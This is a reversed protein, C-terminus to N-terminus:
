YSESIDQALQNFYRLQIKEIFKDNLIHTLDFKDIGVSKAIIMEDKTLYYETDEIDTFFIGEIIDCFGIVKFETSNLYVSKEIYKM